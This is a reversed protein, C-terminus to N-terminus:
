HHHEHNIANSLDFAVTHEHIKYDELLHEVQHQIAAMKEVSTEEELLLSLVAANTTTSMARVRCNTISIVEDIALIDKKLAETDIGNPVGDILMRWSDRLIGWSSLAIVLAIGVGIIPDIIYWETWYILLGSVVVGLSVLADAAMHLYAGKINIDKDKDRMFLLATGANVLIGIGAVAATGLGAVEVQQEIMRMISEWLIGVVAIMLLISNFFAAFISIKQYGYTYRPNPKVKMLRFALMAMLLTFVDGINHGADSLLAVSSYYFGAVIEIVIFGVNLFVGILFLGNINDENLDTHHHHHHHGHHYHM